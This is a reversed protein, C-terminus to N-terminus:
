GGGLSPFDIEERTEWIRRLIELVEESDKGSCTVKTEVPLEKLQNEL